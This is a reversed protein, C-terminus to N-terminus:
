LIISLSQPDVIPRFYHGMVIKKLVCHWEGLGALVCVCVCWGLELLEPGLHHTKVKLQAGWCSRLIKSCTM